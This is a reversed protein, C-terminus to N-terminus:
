IRQPVKGKPARQGEHDKMKQTMEVKQSNQTRKKNGAAPVSPDETKNLSTQLIGYCKTNVNDTYAVNKVSQWIVSILINHSVTLNM